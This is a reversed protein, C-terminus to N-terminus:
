ATAAELKEKIQRQQRAGKNTALLYARYLEPKRAAIDRVAAQRKARNPNPGALKAVAMGFDEIPDGSESSYEETGEAQRLPENGLKPDKAGGAAKAEDLQKQLASKEEAARQEVFKAYAVSAQVLTAGAEIQQERWDATSNPFTSKLEALTAASPTDNELSM